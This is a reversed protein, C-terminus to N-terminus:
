RIENNDDDEAVEEFSQSSTESVSPEFSIQSSPETVESSIEEPTDSSMNMNDTAEVPKESEVAPLKQRLRYCKKQLAVVKAKLIICNSCKAEDMDEAEKAQDETKHLPGEQEMSISEAEIELNSTEPLRIEADQPTDEAVPEMNVQDAERIERWM